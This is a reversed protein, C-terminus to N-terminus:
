IRKELEYKFPYTNITNINNGQKVSTLDIRIEIDSNSEIIVSLRNKYRLIIGLKEVKELSTLDNLEKKTVKKEKALRVRMDYDDINYTNDFDKIKNIISLSDDNDNIIKSALISFIIHNNRNNLSSM